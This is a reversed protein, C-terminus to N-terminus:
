NRYQIRGLLIIKNTQVGADTGSTYIDKIDLPLGCLSDIPIAIIQESRLKMNVTGCKLMYIGCILVSDPCHWNASSVNILIPYDWPPLQAIATAQNQAREAITRQAFVNVSLALVALLFLFNKM